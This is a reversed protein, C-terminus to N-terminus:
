QEILSFDDFIVVRLLRKGLTQNTKELIKRKILGLGPDTLDNVDALRIIVIVQERFRHLNDEMLTLFEDYDKQHVMGWLHFDARLTTESVPQYAAISFEGLDVEVQDAVDEPPKPLEGQGASAAAQAGAELTAGAMAATKSASPLYLYALFCEAAIVLAVFLLVKIKTFVSSEGEAEAPAEVAAPDDIPMPAQEPM